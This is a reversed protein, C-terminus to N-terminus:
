HFIKPALLGVVLGGIICFAGLILLPISILTLYFPISQRVQISYHAPDPPASGPPTLRDALLRQIGRVSSGEVLEIRYDGAVAKFNFLVMRSEYGDGSSMGLITPSLVVTEHTLNNTILPRFQNVPTRKFLRGKQWIAYHGAAPVTFDARKTSYSIDALINGNFARRLQQIAKILIYIGIPVLCFCAIRIAPLPMM